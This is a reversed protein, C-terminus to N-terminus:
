KGNLMYNIAQEAKTAAAVLLRKDDKLAKLWGQIYGVSNNFAKECNLGAIQCAFAASMEAVLEEKSYDESGFAALKTLTDRNLRKAHGTSHALEHFLTSYYEEEIEYQALEPVEVRDLAPVYFARNTNKIELKLNEREVYNNVIEEAAAIPEHENLKVKNAFKPEIGECQDIHFVNYGKLIPYRKVVKEVEIENGNEDTETEKKVVDTFSWFVVMSSREGAKVKGGEKQIQKYTLWEGARMGLLMQNLISYPKGSTHSIAGIATANQWPKQWPVIGNELEKVIKNTIETYIDKNTKM